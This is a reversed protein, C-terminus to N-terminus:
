GERERMNGQSHERVIKLLKLATSLDHFANYLSTLVNLDERSSIVLSARLPRIRFQSTEAVGM